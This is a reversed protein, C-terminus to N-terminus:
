NRLAVTPVLLISLGTLPLSYDHSLFGTVLFKQLLEPSVVNAIHEAVGSAAFLTQKVGQGAEGIDLVNQRQLFGDGHGHGVPIAPGGLFGGHDLEMVANAQTIGDAHDVLGEAPVRGQHHQGTFGADSIVGHIGLHRRVQHIHRPRHGLVRGPNDMWTTQEAQQAPGDFHGGGRRRPRYKQGHGLVNKICRIVFRYYGGYDRRGPHRGLGRGDRGRGLHQAPSLVRQDQHAVTNGARAGLSFQRM